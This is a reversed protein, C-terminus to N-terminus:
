SLTTILYLPRGLLNGDIKGFLGLVEGEGIDEMRTRVAGRYIAPRQRYAVTFQCVNVSYPRM